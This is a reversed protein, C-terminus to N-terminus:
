RLLRYMGSEMRWHMWRRPLASLILFTKALQVQGRVRGLGDIIAIANWVDSTLAKTRVITSWIPSHTSDLQSEEFSKGKVYLDRM